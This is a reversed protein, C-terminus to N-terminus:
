IDRGKAWIRNFDKVFEDVLRPEDNFLFRSESHRYLSDSTLNATGVALSKLQPCVIYKQHMYKASFKISVGDIQKVRHKAVFSRSARRDVLIFASVGRKVANLIADYEAIRSSFGFMAILVVHGRRSRNILDLSLMSLTLPVNKTRMSPKTLPFRQAQNIPCIGNHSKGIGNLTCSTYSFALRCKSNTDENKGLETQLHVPLIFCQQDNNVASTVEYSSVKGKLYEGLAYYIEKCQEKTVSADVQSWYQRFEREYNYMAYLQSSTLCSILVINEYSAERARTTWNYSGSIMAIPIGNINISLMKHHLLGKSHKYSWILSNTTECFYYPYDLKYKIELRGPRSEHETLLRKSGPGGQCWDTLIRVCVNSNQSESSSIQKLASFILSDTFSFVMVHVDVKCSSPVKISAAAEIMRLIIERPQRKTAGSTFYPHPEAPGSIGMANFLAKAQIRAEEINM